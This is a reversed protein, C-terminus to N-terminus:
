SIQCHRCCKPITGTGRTSRRHYLGETPPHFRDVDRNLLSTDIRLDFELDGSLIPSHQIMVTEPHRTLLPWKGGQLGEHTEENTHEEQRYERDIEDNPLQACRTWPICGKSKNEHNSTTSKHRSM